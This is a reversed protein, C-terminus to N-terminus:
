ITIIRSYKDAYTCLVARRTSSTTATYKYNFKNSRLLLRTSKTRRRHLQCKRGHEKKIIIIIDRLINYNKIDYKIASIQNERGLNSYYLIFTLVHFIELIM